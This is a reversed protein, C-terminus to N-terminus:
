IQLTGGVIISRTKTNLLGTTRRQVLLALRHVARADLAAEVHRMKRCRSSAKPWDASDVVLFM